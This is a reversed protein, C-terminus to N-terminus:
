QGVNIVGMTVELDIPDRLYQFSSLMWFQYCVNRISVFDVLEWPPPLERPLARVNAVGIALSEM